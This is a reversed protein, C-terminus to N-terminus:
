RGGSRRAAGRGARSSQDDVDGGAFSGHVLGPAGSSDAPPRTRQQRRGKRCHTTQDSATLFGPPIRRHFEHARRLPTSTPPAGSGEPRRHEGSLELVEVGDAYTRRAGGHNPSRDATPSQAGFERAPKREIGSIMIQWPLSITLSIDRSQSEPQSTRRSITREHHTSDRDGRQAVGGGMLRGEVPSHSTLIRALSFRKLQRAARVSRSFAM